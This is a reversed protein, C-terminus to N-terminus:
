NEKTRTRVQLLCASLKAGVERINPEKLLDRHRGSVTQWEIGGTGLREWKRREDTLDSTQEARLITIKGPYPKAVYRHYALTHLHRLLRLRRERSGSGDNPFAEIFREIWYSLENKLKMRITFLLRGRRLFYAIRRPYYSLLKQVGVHSHQRAAELPAEPSDIIILAAVEEGSALLQQAMEYAVYGGFCRGSLLYPGSHQIRKMEKIYDSAMTEISLHPREGREMGRPQFSYLPQDAPIYRALAGFASVSSGAPPVSFLPVVERSGVRVAVPAPSVLGRRRIQNEVFQRITPSEFLSSLPLHFGIRREMEAVARVALLSNGGLDFFNDHIGISEASLVEQWIGLLRSEYPDRASSAAEARTRLRHRGNIHLEHLERARKGSPTVPLSDVVVLSPVMWPPLQRRLESQLEVPRPRAGRRPTVYGILRGDEPAARDVVVLAESVGALAQLRLEIEELEVRYGRVKVQNDTRGLCEVEGGPLVRALDGTRFLPYDKAHTASDSQSMSVPPRPFKLTSLSPRNLYGRAVGIGGVFLEGRIGRPVPRLADNLVHLEMNDIPHGIPVYERELDERRVRHCGADYTETTGYLNYVEATPLEQLLEHALQSSFLEGTVFWRTVSSLSRPFGGPAQLLSRLLSPVLIIRRVPYEAVTEALRRPDRLASEEIVVMSRGALLAGFIEWVSDIFNLSTKQLVVEDAEFPFGQWMWRLRNLAAEHSGLVGKPRGTSGSTYLCFAPHQLGADQDDAEGETTVDARDRDRGGSRGDRDAVVGSSSNVAVVTLDTAAALISESKATSPRSSIVIHTSSDEIIFHLLEAPYAPDLPLWSAGAKLIGLISAVAGASREMHVGVIEGETCGCARLRDRIENSRLRLEEYSMRSAGAIVATETGNRAAQIDFLQHLREGTVAHRSEQRLKPTAPLAKPRGRPPRELDIRDLSTSPNALVEDLVRLFHAVPRGRVSPPFLSRKLDFEFRLSPSSTGRVHVTLPLTDNGSHLWEERVEEGGITPYSVNHVNLMVDYLTNDRNSITYGIHRNTEESEKAVRDVLDLFSEEGHVEIRLVAIRMRLGLALREDESRRNSFPVGVSLYTEGTLKYLYAFLAACLLNALRVTANPGSRTEALARVEQTPSPALSTSIRVVGPEEQDTHGYFDTPRIPRSLKRTWYEEDSVRASPPSATNSVSESDGEPAFLTGTENQVPTQRQDLAVGSLLEYSLAVRDVLVKVSWGDAIMHHLSLYWRFDSESVRVLLSDLMGITPDLRLKTRQDRMEAIAAPPEERLDRYGYRVAPIESTEFFPNEVPGGVRLSFIPDSEAVQELASQLRTPDIGKLHICVSLTYAPTDEFRLHGYWMQKQLGNLQYRRAISTSDM